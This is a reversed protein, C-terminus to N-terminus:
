QHLERELIVNWLPCLVSYKDSQLLCPENNASHLKSETKTPLFKVYVDELVSPSVNRLREGNELDFNNRLTYIESLTVYILM